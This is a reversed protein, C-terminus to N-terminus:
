GKLGITMKSDCSDSLFEIKYEYYPELKSDIIRIHEFIEENNILIDVYIKDDYGLLFLQILDSLSVNPKLCILEDFTM